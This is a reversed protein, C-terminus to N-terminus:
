AQQAIAYVKMGELNVDVISTGKRTAKIEVARKETGIEPSMVVLQPLPVAKTNIEYSLKNNKVSSDIDNLIPIGPVDKIKPHPIAILATNMFHIVPKGEHIRIRAVWGKDGSVQKLVPQFKGKQILSELSDSTLASEVLVLNKYKAGTLEASLPVNKKNGKEDHTGFPLSLWATGGKSLYTKIAKFQDNSVCGLSDLILPTNEKCLVKPDSLEASRVFRYGVNNKVLKSSWAKVKEWQEKGDAGRWGNDRCYSSSVLRVEALDKGNMYNWNSHDVEWNNYPGVIAETERADAPDEELRQNHTSAWNGVGWFRSLGWGLYGGKEYITYSLAM